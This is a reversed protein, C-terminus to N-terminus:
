QFPGLVALDPIVVGPLPVLSAFIQHTLGFLGLYVFSLRFAIRTPLSWRAAGSPRSEAPAVNSIPEGLKQNVM